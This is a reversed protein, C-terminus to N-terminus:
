ISRVEERLQMMGFVLFLIAFVIYVALYAGLGNNYTFIEALGTVLKVSLGDPNDAAHSVISSGGLCLIIYGFWMVYFGIRGFHLVVMGSVFKLIVVAALITFLIQPTLFGLELVIESGDQRPVIVGYIFMEVHYLIWLLIMEAMSFVATTGLFAGLFRKRTCGMATAINFKQSYYMMSAFLAMIFFAGAAFVTGFPFGENEGFAGLLIIGVVLGIVFSILEVCLDVLLNGKFYRFWAVVFNSKKM